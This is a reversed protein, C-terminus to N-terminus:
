KSHKTKLPSIEWIQAYGIPSKAGSSPGQHHTTSALTPPKSNNLSETCSNNLIWCFWILFNWWFIKKILIKYGIIQVVIYTQQQLVFNVIIYYRQLITLFAITKYKTALPQRQKYGSCYCIQIQTKLLNVTTNPVTVLCAACLCTLSHGHLLRM